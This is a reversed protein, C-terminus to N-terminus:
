KWCYEDPDFDNMDYKELKVDYILIRSQLSTLVQWYGQLVGADFAENEGGKSELWRTKADQTQDMLAEVLDNLLLSEPCWTM